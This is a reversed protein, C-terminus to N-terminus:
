VFLGRVVRGRREVAMVVAKMVVVLRDAPMGPM